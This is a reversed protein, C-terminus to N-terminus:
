FHHNEMAIAINFLWITIGNFRAFFIENLMPNWNINPSQVYTGRPLDGKRVSVRQVVSFRQPNGSQFYCTSCSDMNINNSIERTIEIQQKRFVRLFRQLRDKWVFLRLGTCCQAVANTFQQNM